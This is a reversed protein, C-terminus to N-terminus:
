NYQIKIVLVHYSLTFAKLFYHNFIDSFYLSTQSFPM